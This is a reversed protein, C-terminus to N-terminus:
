VVVARVDPGHDAFTYVRHVYYAYAKGSEAPAASVTRSGRQCHGSRAHAGPAARVGVRKLARAPRPHRESGNLQTFAHELLPRLLQPLIKSALRALRDAFAQMSTWAALIDRYTGLTLYITKPLKAGSDDLIQPTFINFPM